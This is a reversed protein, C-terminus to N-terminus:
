SVEATNISDVASSITQSYAHGMEKVLSDTRFRNLAAVAITEKSALLKGDKWEVFYHVLGDAYTAFDNNTAIWGTAGHGIGEARATRDFAIVPLGCLLAEVKTM